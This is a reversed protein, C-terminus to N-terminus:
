GARARRGGYRAAALLSPQRARPSLRCRLNRRWRCPGLCRGRSSLARRVVFGKGQMAEQRVVAGARRAEAVTDDSSNNDYVYIAASPLYRRFDEVVRAITKGENYCPLIVAMTPEGALDIDGELDRLAELEGAEEHARLVMPQLICFKRGDLLELFDSATFRFDWPSGRLAM